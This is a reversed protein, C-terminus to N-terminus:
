TKMISLTLCLTFFSSGTTEKQWVVPPRRRKKVNVPAINDGIPKDLFIRICSSLLVYRRDSPQFRWKRNNALHFLFAEIEPKGMDKPKNEM